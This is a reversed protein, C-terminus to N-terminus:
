QNTLISSIPIIDSSSCTSHPVRSLIEDGVSRRKTGECLRSRGLADVLFMRRTHINTCVYGSLLMRVPRPSYEDLLCTYHHVKAQWSECPVSFLWETYHSDGEYVNTTTCFISQQSIDFFLYWSLSREPVYLSMDLTGQINELESVQVHSGCRYVTPKSWKSKIQIHRTERRWETGNAAGEENVYKTSHIGKM